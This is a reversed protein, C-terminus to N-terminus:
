YVREYYGKIFGVEGRTKNKRTKDDSKRTKENNKWQKKLKGRRKEKGKCRKEM